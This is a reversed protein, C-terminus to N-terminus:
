IFKVRLQQLPLLRRESRLLTGGLSIEFEEPYAQAQVHRLSEIIPHFNHCGGSTPSRFAGMKWGHSSKSLRCFIVGQSAPKSKLLCTSVKHSKWADVIAVVINSYKSLERGSPSSVIVYVDTTAPPLRDLHVEFLCKGTRPLEDLLLGGYKIAGNAADSSGVPGIWMGNYDVVGNHVIRVGHPGRYDVIESLINHVNWIETKKEGTNLASAIGEFKHENDEPQNSLKVIESKLEDSEKVLRNHERVLSEVDVKKALDTIDYDFALPRERQLPAYSEMAGGLRQHFGQLPAEALYSLVANSGWRGILQITIPDLGWQCLLRAGTIRFTHGSIRWTGATDKASGGSMDVAKRITDVVGQKSCVAGSATPFLASERGGFKDRILNVHDKLFHMVCPLDRDCLCHWTRTCGKAQWDVKSVPLRLSVSHDDFTIDDVEIASAEVERLMFLTATIIMAAPNLPGTNVLPDTSGQLRELLSMLDFPELRQAGGLGRLVSRACKKSIVDLREPWDYGSTIHHEKIRSLYNKVSKYGGRKFLSSVKFLKDETTPLVEVSEGFWKLHFRNWTNLLADRPARSSSAYMDTFLENLAGRM